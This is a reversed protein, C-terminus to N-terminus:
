AALKDTETLRWGPNLSGDSQTEAKAAHKLKRKSSMGRMTMGGGGLGSLM